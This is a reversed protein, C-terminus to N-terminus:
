LSCKQLTHDVKGGLVCIQAEFTVEPGTSEMNPRGFASRESITRTSGVINDPIGM